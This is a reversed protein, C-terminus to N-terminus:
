RSWSMAARIKARMADMDAQPAADVRQWSAQVGKDSLYEAYQWNITGHGVPLVVGMRVLETTFTDSFLQALERCKMGAAFEQKILKLGLRLSDNWKVRGTRTRKGTSESVSKEGRARAPRTSFAKCRKKRPIQDKATTDPSGHEQKILVAGSNTLAVAQTRQPLPCDSAQHSTNRRRPRISIGIKSGRSACKTGQQFGQDGDQQYSKPNEHEERAHKHGDAM